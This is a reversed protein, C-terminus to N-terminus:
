PISELSELLAEDELKQRASTSRKRVTKASLYEAHEASTLNQM